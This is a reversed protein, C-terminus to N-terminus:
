FGLGYYDQECCHEGVGRSLLGAGVGQYDREQKAHFITHDGGRAAVAAKAEREEKLAVAVEKQEETLEAVFAEKTAWPQRSMLVFPQSPDFTAPQQQQQQQQQQKGGKDVKQRKAPSAMSADAAAAAAVSAKHAVVGSGAPDHATGSRCPPCSIFDAAYFAWCGHALTYM